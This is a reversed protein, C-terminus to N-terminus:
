RAAVNASEAASTEAAATQEGAELGALVKYAEEVGDAQAAEAWKRFNEKSVAKIAIPMYAHNIGCLESCQGYYTGEYLIKTWTENIRGPVTDLKLGLAPIAFNHLVDSATLLIRITTDVPLVVQNDVALLRPQGEQLEDKPIMYSDFAIDGHDPYEYSWFWQNGIAKFTMEADVARDAFYLYRMSPVAVGLLLIIPVVTWLVEITTNHTTKTPTPNSKENFRLMVYILLGLVFLTILTIIWLLGTHFSYLKEMVPSAPAQLGMQWPEPQQAGAGGVVAMGMLVAATLGFVVATAALYKRM